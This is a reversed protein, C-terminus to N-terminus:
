WWTPNFDLGMNAAGPTDFCEGLGPVSWAQNENAEHNLNVYQFMQIVRPVNLFSVKFVTM